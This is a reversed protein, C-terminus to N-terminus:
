SRLLNVHNGFCDMGANTEEFSIEKLVDSFFPFPIISIRKAREPAEDAEFKLSIFSRLPRFTDGDNRERRQRINQFIKRGRRFREREFKAVRFWSTDPKVQTERVLSDEVNTLLTQQFWSSFYPRTVVLMYDEGKKLFIQIHISSNHEYDM